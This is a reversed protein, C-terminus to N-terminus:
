VGYRNRKVTAVPSSANVDSHEQSRGPSTMKQKYGRKKIAKNIIEDDAKSYGLTAVYDHTPYASGDNTIGDDSSAQAMDIGFRYFEYYQDMDPFTRARPLSPDNFDYKKSNERLFERARM